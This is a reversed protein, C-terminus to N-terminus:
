DLLFQLAMEWTITQGVELAVWAARGQQSRRGDGLSPITSARTTSSGATRKKKVPLLTYKDRYRM